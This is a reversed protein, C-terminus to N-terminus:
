PQLRFGHKDRRVMLRALERAALSEDVGAEKRFSNRLKDLSSDEDSPGGTEELLVALAGAFNGFL